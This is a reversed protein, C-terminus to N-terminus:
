SEMEEIVKQIPMHCMLSSPSLRTEIERMLKFVHFLYSLMWPVEGQTFVHDFSGLASLYLRKGFIACSVHWKQTPKYNINQASRKVNCKLYLYM